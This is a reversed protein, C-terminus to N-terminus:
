GLTKRFKSGSKGGRAEWFVSKSLSRAFVSRLSDTYSNSIDEAGDSFRSERKGHAGNQLFYTRLNDFERPFYIRCTFQAASDQFTIESYVHPKTKKEKESEKEDSETPSDYTRKVLPEEISAICKKYEVSVLSYAIISSMDQDCVLVPINGVPLCYHEAGSIPSLLSYQISKDAPFIERFISKVKKKEQTKDPKDPKQEKDSNSQSNSDQMLAQKDDVLQEVANNKHDLQSQNFYDDFRHAWNEVSDALLKKLAFMADSIQFDDVSEREHLANFAEVQARFTGQDSKLTKILADLLPCESDISLQALKEFIRAYLEYGRPTFTKIEEAISILFKKNQNTKLILIM